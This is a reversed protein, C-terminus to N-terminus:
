WQRRDSCPFTGPLPEYFRRDVPNAYGVLRSRDFANMYFTRFSGELVYCSFRLNGWVVNAPCRLYPLAPRHDINCRRPSPGVSVPGDSDGYIGTLAPSHAM